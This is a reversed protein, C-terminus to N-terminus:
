LQYGKLIVYNYAAVTDPHIAAGKSLLEEITYKLAYKLAENASKDVLERMVDVDEYDRDSSTFDALYLVIELPSMDAKATTHYRIASIIDKDDVDFYHEVYAAGSIAHWLKEATSEVDSLIIGFASFIQLHEEQSANKTVDHLLGAFYAKNQDAGYIGALRYAEDAVALSHLYRKENLRSKLLFKYEDIIKTNIFDENVLM